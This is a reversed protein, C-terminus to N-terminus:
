SNLVDYYQPQLGVNFIGDMNHNNFFDIVSVPKEPSSSGRNQGIGAVGGTFVEDMDYFMNGFMDILSIQVDTGTTRSDLMLFFKLFGANVDKNPNKITNNHVSVRKFIVQVTFMTKNAVDGGMGIITNDHIICYGGASYTNGPYMGASTINVCGTRIIPYYNGTNDVKIVNRSVNVNAGNRKVTNQMTPPVGDGPRATLEHRVIAGGEVYNDTLTLVSAIIDAFVEVSGKIINDKVIANESHLYTVENSDIINGFTCRETSNGIFYLDDCLANVASGTYHYDVWSNGRFDVLTAFANVTAGAECNKFTNNHIFAETRTAKSHPSVIIIEDDANGSFTNHEIRVNDVDIAKIYVAYFDWIPTGEQNVYEGGFNEFKCNKVTLYETNNANIVPYRTLAGTHSTSGIFEINDIVANGTCNFATKTPSPAAGVLTPVVQGGEGLIYTEKSVTVPDILYKGTLLVIYGSDVADQMATTDNAVGNGVAGFMEPTVFYKKMDAALADVRDSLEGIQANYVGTQAWYEANASPNGVEAPVPKRSTYSNNNYTVITLPEYAVGSEWEPTGNSNLYFKPVYRAGIYQLTAM